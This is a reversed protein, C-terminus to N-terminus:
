TRENGDGTQPTELSKLRELLPPHSYSLICILPAPIFHHTILSLKKLAESLAAGNFTQRAYSDAQFENQPEAYQAVHRFCCGTAFGIRCFVLLNLSRRVLGGTVASLAENFV